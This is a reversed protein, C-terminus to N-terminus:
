SGSTTSEDAAALASRAEAKQFVFLRDVKLLLSLFLSCFLSLCFFLRDRLFILKVIVVYDEMYHLEFSDNKCNM